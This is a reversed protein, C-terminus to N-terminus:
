IEIKVTELKILELLYAEVDKNPNECYLHFILDHNIQNTYM